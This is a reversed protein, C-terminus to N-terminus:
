RDWLASFPPKSAIARRRRGDEIWQTILTKGAGAAIALEAAGMARPEDLEGERAGIFIGAM